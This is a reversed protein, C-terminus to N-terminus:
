FLFYDDKSAGTKLAGPSSCSSGPPYKGRHGSEVVRCRCRWLYSPGRIRSSRWPEPAHILNSRKPTGDEGQQLQQKSRSCARPCNKTFLASVINILGPSKWHAGVPELFKSSKRIIHKFHIHLVTPRLNFVNLRCMHRWTSIGGSVCILEKSKLLAPSVTRATAIEGLFCEKDM